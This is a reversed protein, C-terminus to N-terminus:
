DDVALYAGLVALARAASAHEIVLTTRGERRVVGMVSPYPLPAFRRSSTVSPMIRYPLKLGLDDAARVATITDIEQLGLFGLRVPLRSRRSLSNLFEVEDRALTCNIPNLLLVIGSPRDGLVIQAVEDPLPLTERGSCASVAGLAALLSVLTSVTLRRIGNM